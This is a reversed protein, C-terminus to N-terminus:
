NTATSGAVLENFRAATIGLLLGADDKGFAIAPVKVKSKGTDRTDVWIRAWKGSFVLKAQIEDYQGTVRNRIFFPFIIDDDGATSLVSRRDVTSKSYEVMRKYLEPNNRKTNALAEAEKGDNFLITGCVVEGAAGHEHDHDSQSAQAFAGTTIAAMLAGSALIRYFLRSM